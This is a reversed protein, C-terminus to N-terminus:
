VDLGEDGFHLQVQRWTPVPQEGLRPRQVAVPRVSLGVPAAPVWLPFALRLLIDGYYFYQM